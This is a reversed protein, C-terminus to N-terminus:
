TQSVDLIAEIVYDINQGNLGAVNIRGNSPMYVAYDKILQHVQGETLGIFSFFGSQKNLFSWDKSSGKAQLGSILSRRMEALRERMNGLETIWEKKLPDSNLIEAIIAAGHRPPNSYNSRIMQRLQSSAKRSSEPHQTLLSLTGAREGYLGFNKAFSSAVLMEHGQSAFHRLAFADDDLSAKFGQYAFDFFPIIKQKKILLSLEKWQDPSLDM